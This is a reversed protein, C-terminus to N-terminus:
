IETYICTFYQFFYNANVWITLSNHYWSVCVSSLHLLIVNWKWMYISLWTHYIWLTRSSKSIYAFRDEYHTTSCVVKSTTQKHQWVNKDPVTRRSSDGKYIKAQIKWLHQQWLCKWM